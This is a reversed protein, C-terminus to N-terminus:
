TAAKCTAAAGDDFGASTASRHHQIRDIKVDVPILYNRRCGRNPKSHRQVLCPRQFWRGIACACHALHTHTM